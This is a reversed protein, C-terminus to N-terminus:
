WVLIKKEAHKKRWKAQEKEVLAMRSKAMLSQMALRIPMEISAYAISRLRVQADRSGQTPSQAHEMLLMVAHAWEEGSLELTDYRGENRIEYVRRRHFPSVPSEPSNVWELAQSAGMSAVSGSEMGVDPFHLWHLSRAGKLESSLAALKEADSWKTAGGTLMVIVANGEELRMWELSERHEFRVAQSLFDSFPVLEESKWEGDRHFYSQGRVIESPDGCDVVCMRFLGGVEPFVPHQGWQEKLAEETSDPIGCLLVVMRRASYRAAM